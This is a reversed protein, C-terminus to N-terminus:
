ISKFSTILNILSILLFLSFFLKFVERLFLTKTTHATTRANRNHKAVRCRRGYCM